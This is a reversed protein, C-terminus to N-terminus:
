RTFLWKLSPNGLSMTFTSTTKQSTGTITASQTQKIYLANWGTKLALSFDKTTSSDSYKIGDEESDFTGTQGKGSITVDSDVYVYDVSEITVSYGKSNSSGTVNGKYLSFYTYTPDNLNIGSLIVGRVNPNSITFNNYSDEDFYIYIEDNNGVLTDLDNDNPKGITYSLKGNKVEGSGGYHDDLTLNGDFKKYTISTETNEQLYVQGSLELTNGLFASGDADGGTNGGTDDTGGGDNCAATLFGIVAALVIIGFLKFFNRM